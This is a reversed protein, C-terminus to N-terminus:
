GARDFQLLVPITRLIIEWDLRLSCREVYEVDLRLMETPSVQSRGSVQWLGTLGPLVQFRRWQWPEYTELAYPVEPRPGVLSMEGRLVNILQPLEDLSAARLMRGARTIRPDKPLKYIAESEHGAEACPNSGRMLGQVYDRHLSPDADCVMSRFKLM